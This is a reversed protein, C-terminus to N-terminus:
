SSFYERLAQAIKAIASPTNAVYYYDKYSGDLTLVADIKNMLEELPTTILVDANALSITTQPIPKISTYPDGLPNYVSGFELALDIKNSSISSPDLSIIAVRAGVTVSGMAGFVNNGSADYLSNSFIVSTIQANTDLRFTLGSIEEIASTLILSCEVNENPPASSPCDLDFEVDEALAAVSFLLLFLLGSLILKNKM